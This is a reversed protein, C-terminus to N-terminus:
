NQQKKSTTNNKKNSKNRQGKKRKWFDETKLGGDHQIPVKRFFHDTIIKPPSHDTQKLFTKGGNLHKEKHHSITHHKQPM